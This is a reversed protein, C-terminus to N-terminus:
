DLTLELGDYALHIGEPLEKEVEAHLGLKHSIHTFYTNK